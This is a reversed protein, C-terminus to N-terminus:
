RSWRRNERETRALEQQRQDELLLWWFRMPTMNGPLREDRAFGGGDLVNTQTGRTAREENEVHARTVMVVGEAEMEALARRIPGVNGPRDWDDPLGTETVMVWRRPYPFGITPSGNPNWPYRPRSGRGSELDVMEVSDPGKRLLQGFLGRLLGTCYRYWSRPGPGRLRTRRQPGVVRRIGAELSLIVVFVLLMLSAIAAHSVGFAFVLPCNSTYATLFGAVIGLAALFIALITAARILPPHLPRPLFSRVYPLAQM